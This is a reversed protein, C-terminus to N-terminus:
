WLFASAIKGVVKGSFLLKARTNAIGNCVHLPLLHEERPHCYRAHPANGWNILRNELKDASISENCCTDILWDEFAENKLDAQDRAVSFFASLNHFSFGSGIILM